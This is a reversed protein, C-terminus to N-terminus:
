VYMSVCVSERERERVSLTKVRRWSRWKTTRARKQEGVMLKEMIKAPGQMATGEFTLM